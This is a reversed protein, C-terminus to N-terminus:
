LLFITQLFVSFIIWFILGIGYYLATFKIANFYKIKLIFQIGISLFLIYIIETINICQLPYILWYPVDENRFFLRASQFDYNNNINNYNREILGSCKLIVSVLYNIAFIIQSKLSISFIKVFSIKINNFITGVFFCLSILITPIIIIVPIYLYNIWNVERDKLMFNMINDSDQNKFSQFYFDDTFVFKFEINLSVVYIIALILLIIWNNTRFYKQLIKM